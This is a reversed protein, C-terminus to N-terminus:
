RRGERQLSMASFAVRSAAFMIVFCAAGMAAARGFASDAGLRALHTSMLHASDGALAAPEANAMFADLFRLAAAILLVGGLRPLQIRTFVSWGSAGDIRAAKYYSEPIGILGAYVILAVMSTWRWADMAAFQLWVDLQPSIQAVGSMAPDLDMRFLRWILGVVSGPILLPLALLSLCAGAAVGSRPVHLAVFVGLPLQVLLALAAYGLSNGVAFWFSESTLVDRYAAAGVDRLVGEDEVWVSHNFLAMLPIALALLMLAAAPGVLIWAGQNAPKM